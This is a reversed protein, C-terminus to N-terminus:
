MEDSEQSRAGSEKKERPQPLGLERTIYQALEPFPALVGSQALRALTDLVQDFRRARLNSVTLAPYRGATAAADWNYDVLRKV